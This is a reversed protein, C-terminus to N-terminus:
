PCNKDTLPKADLMGGIGFTKDEGTEINHAKIKMVHHIHCYFTDSTAVYTQYGTIPHPFRFMTGKTTKLLDM